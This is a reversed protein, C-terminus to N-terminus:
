CRDQEHAAGVRLPSGEDEGEALRTELDVHGCGLRLRERPQPFPRLQDDQGVAARLQAPADLRVRPRGVDRHEVQAAARIAAVRAAVAVQRLRHVGTLQEAVDVGQKRSPRDSAARRALSARRRSM